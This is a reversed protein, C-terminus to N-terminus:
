LIMKKRPSVVLKESNKLILGEMTKSYRQPMFCLLVEM